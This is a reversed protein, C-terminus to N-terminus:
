FLDSHCCVKFWTDESLIFYAKYTTDIDPWGDRAYYDNLAKEESDWDTTSTTGDPIVRAVRFPKDCSM